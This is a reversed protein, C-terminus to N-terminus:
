FKQRLRMTPLHSRSDRRHWNKRTSRVTLRERRFATRAAVASGSAVARASGPGQAVTGTGVGAFYRNPFGSQAQELILGPFNDSFLGVGGRLVMKGDSHTDWNFGVRPQVIATEISPFASRHGSSITANYPVDLPDTGSPFTAPFGGIYHNFCNNM